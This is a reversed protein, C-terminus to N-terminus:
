KFLQLMWWDKQNSISSHKSGIRGFGVRMKIRQLNIIEYKRDHKSHQKYEEGDCWLADMDKQTEQM